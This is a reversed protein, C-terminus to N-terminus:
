FNTGFILRDCIIKNLCYRARMQHLVCGQVKNAPLGVILRPVTNGSALLIGKTRMRGGKNRETAGEWGGM